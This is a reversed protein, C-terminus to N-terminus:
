EVDQKSRYVAWQLVNMVTGDPLTITKDRDASVSDGGFDERYEREIRNKTLRDTKEWTMRDVSTYKADSSEGEREIRERSAERVKNVIDKARNTLTQRKEDINMGQYRESKIVAEMVENLNYPSGAKSLEQRMYFDLQDNPDRKYIEYPTMNLRGLEELFVNKPKRKTLGFMQKELPNVQMLEGTEFASRARVGEPLGMGETSIRDVYDSFGENADGVFNKPTSRTGRAFLVDFFNYEGTRTEPIGRVDRDFQAYMDRVASAPILFTNAINGVFEGIMKQTGGAEFDSVLKDLAYLGMGTRFTSGLLSEAIARGYYQTPRAPMQDNQYRYITDALLMFPAFPGYVPRGDIINGNNDKFEYWHTTEGQKVRWNYAATLMVAGTAQKAFMEKYYGPAKATKAGLRDLHMMGILPMHEYVFKLQNAVFRPFPMFGSILFPAAHHLKLVGRAFASPLNKGTMPAQYVFEYADGIADKLMQDPMRSLSGTEMLDELQVTKKAGIGGYEDMLKALDDKSAKSIVEDVQKDTMQRRMRGRLMIEKLNDSMPINADSIRRRLSAAIVARKFFNDSATNLINIKRGMTALFTEGGKAAEIDAAERFLKAADEPFTERFLKQVVRAEYPNLMYKAVDFTGDLPNRLNFINDFTRTTADIAVRMGGNLNNRMTTAPQSTMVGLRLKDLDQAVQYAKNTSQIVDKAQEVDIGSKGGKNLSDISSILKDVEAQAKQVDGKMAKKATRQLQLTRGADSVEALYLLSFEDYSLNHEDLIQKVGDVEDTIKGDQMARFIGSTIRENPKLDLHERIRIAAAAINEKVEMPLGVETSDAKSSTMKLKRGARVKDEPLADLVETAKKFTAKSTKQKVEKTKDAAINAKTARNIEAQALLENAKNARKVNMYQVPLNLLGGTGAAILGTTAVQGTDVEEQMGTEVRVEQQMRGQGAGIAGEVVAAKSSRKLAESLVKRVGMKAVQTAGYSAAKGTGGTIIGLYTSPATAIGEAYDLASTLSVEGDLRDYADILNAFRLKSEQSANQAYELDRLTTVENVNHFRMHEMFADYVEQPNKLDKKGEREALFKKADDYFEFDRLLDNKTLEDKQSYKRQM